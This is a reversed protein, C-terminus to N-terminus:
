PKESRLTRAVGLHEAKNVLHVQDVRINTLGYTPVCPVLGVLLNIKLTPTGARNGETVKRDSAKSERSKSLPILLALIIDSSACHGHIDGAERSGNPVLTEVGYTNTASPSDFASTRDDHHSLGLSPAQKSLTLNMIGSSWRKRM